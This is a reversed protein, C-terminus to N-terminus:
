RPQPLSDEPSHYDEGAWNLQSGPLLAHSFVPRGAGARRRPLDARVIYVTVGTNLWHDAATESQYCGSATEDHSATVDATRNTATGRNSALNKPNTASMDENNYAHHSLYEASESDHQAIGSATEDHSATVDATRHTATGTNSVLDIANQATSVLSMSIAQSLAVAAQDLSATNNISTLVNPNPVTHDSLSTDVAEYTNQSAAATLEYQPNVLHKTIVKSEDLATHDKSATVAATGKDYQPNTLSTSVVLTEVMARHDLSDTVDASVNMGITGYTAGRGGARVSKNLGSPCIVTITPTPVGSAECVLSEEKTSSNYYKNREFRVINLEKTSSNYYKNRESRVINPEATQLNQPIATLNLRRCWCDRVMSCDCSDETSGFTGMIALLFMLVCAHKTDM